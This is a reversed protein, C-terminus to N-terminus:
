LTCTSIVSCNQSTRLFLCKRKFQLWLHTLGRSSRDGSRGPGLGTNRYVSARVVQGSLHELRGHNLIGHNDDHYAAGGGRTYVPVYVEPRQVLPLVQAGRVPLRRHRHPTQSYGVKKPAPNQHPAPALVPRGSAGFMVLCMVCFLAPALHRLGLCSLMNKERSARRQHWATYLNRLEYAQTPTNRDSPHRDGHIRAGQTGLM